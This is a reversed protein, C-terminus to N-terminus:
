NIWWLICDWFIARCPPSIHLLLLLSSQDINYTPLHLQLWILSCHTQVVLSQFCLISLLLMLQSPFLSVMSRKWQFGGTISSLAQSISGVLFSQCLETHPCYNKRRKSNSHGRIWSVSGYVSIAFFLKIVFVWKLFTTKQLQWKFVFVFPIWEESLTISPLLINIVSFVPHWASAGNEDQKELLM